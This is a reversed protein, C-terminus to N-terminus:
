EPEPPEIAATPGRGLVEVAVFRDDYSALTDFAPSARLARHVATADTPYEDVQPRWHVAVLHGGDELSTAAQAVVRDLDPPDFYYGVESLVILDFRGPPWETPLARRELTVHPPLGRRSAAELAGASIDTALLTSCREALLVTLAGNSCGPEFARRYHRRPLVAMTLARKRQEYWRDDFGWPDSSSEYMGEFYDRPLTM